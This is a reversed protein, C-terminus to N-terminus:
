LDLNYQEETLWEKKKILRSKDEEELGTILTPADTACVAACQPEDYEGICNTCKDAVIFYSEDSLPKNIVDADIVEGNLNKVQGSLSTGDSFKWYEGVDYIATHPCEPECAGMNTCLDTDIFLAM